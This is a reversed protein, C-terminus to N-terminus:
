ISLAARSELARVTELYCTQDLLCLLGDPRNVDGTRVFNSCRCVATSCSPRLVCTLCADPSDIDDCRYGLFDGGDLVSGPLRLPNGPEDAGVVRECPYLNGRPTVSIEGSGFGCRPSKGLPVGALRAAREDFWSLGVDPLRDVWFDAAAAIARKLRQGDTLRWQTWLNLSPHFRRVGRDYLYELGAPLFDVTDPQVVTIVNFAVGLDQLRTM